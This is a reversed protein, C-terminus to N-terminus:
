IELLRAEQRSLIPDKDDQFYDEVPGELSTIMPEYSQLPKELSVDNLHTLKTEKDTSESLTKNIMSHTPAVRYPKSLIGRVNLRSLAKLNPEDTFKCAMLVSPGSSQYQKQLIQIFQGGTMDPLDYNTIILDIPKQNENTAYKLFIVALDASEVAIADHGWARCYDLMVKQSLVNDDVILIRSPESQELVNDCRDCIPLRITFSLCSGEGLRSTLNLEGGMLKVLRAAIALGLGTGDLKGFGMAERQQFEDFYTAAKDDSIGASTDTIEFHIRMQHASLDKDDSLNTLSMMVHGNETNQLSHTMLNLLIQRLRGIDGLLFPPITQDIHFCIEIDKDTAETTLLLGVDEVVNAINLPDSALKIQSTEMRSVDLVDNILGLLSNASKSIINSFTRQRHDLNTDELLNMVSIIGNMPTRVEHSITMLFETKSKQAARAEELAQETIVSQQVVRDMLKSVLTEALVFYTISIIVLSIAMLVLKIKHAEVQKQLLDRSREAFFRELQELRPKLEQDYTAIYTQIARLMQPITSATVLDTPALLDRLEATPQQPNLFRTNAEYNEVIDANANSWSKKFTDLLDSVYVQDQLIYDLETRLAIARAMAQLQADTGQSGQITRQRAIQALQFARIHLQDGLKELNEIITMNQTTNTINKDHEIYMHGLMSLMILMIALFGIRMARRIRMHDPTSQNVSYIDRAM